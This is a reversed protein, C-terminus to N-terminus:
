SCCFDDPVDVLIEEPPRFSLYCPLVSCNCQLHVKSPQLLHQQHQTDRYQETHEQVFNDAMRMMPPPAAYLVPPMSVTARSHTASPIKPLRSAQIHRNMVEMWCEDCQEDSLCVNMQSCRPSKFNIEDENNLLNTIM